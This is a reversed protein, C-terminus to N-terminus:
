QVRQDAIVTAVQEKSVFVNYLLNRIARL